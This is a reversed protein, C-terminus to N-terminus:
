LDLDSDLELNSADKNRLIRAVEVRCQTETQKGFRTIIDMVMMARAETMGQGDTTKISGVVDETGDFSTVTVFEM